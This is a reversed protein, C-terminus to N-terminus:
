LNRKSNREKRWHKNKRCLKCSTAVGKRNNSNRHFKDLPKNQKCLACRAQDDPCEFLPKAPRKAKINCSLHSFAINDIDWFLTADIGEWPSKHDLSFDSVSDITNRCRYCYVLGGAKALSFM